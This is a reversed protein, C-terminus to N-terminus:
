QSKKRNAFLIIYVLVIELFIQATKSFIGGPSFMVSPQNQYMNFFFLIVAANIVAGIVWLWRWRLMILLGGLLYCGAAFYIIVAGDDASPKPGIGLVNGAILMYVGATLIALAVAFWMASNTKQQPHHITNM